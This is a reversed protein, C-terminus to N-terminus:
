KVVVKRGNNIYIGKTLPVGPVRSGDLRYWNNDSVRDRSIANIGTTKSVVKFNDAYLNVENTTTPAAPLKLGLTLSGKDTVTTTVSVEYATGWSSTATVAKTEDNAFLVIGNYDTHVVASVTYEGEPLISLSQSIINGSALLNGKSVWSQFCNGNVLGSHWENVVVPWITGWGQEGNITWGPCETIESGSTVCSEFDMNVFQTTIDTESPDDGSGLFKQLEYFAAYPQGSDHNFLGANWWSDTVGENGNDEPWWWFLGTVREHKNLLTILDATLQKQGEESLPYTATLDYESGISWKYGYGAEVIMIDKDYGKGELAKLAGELVSLAGHHDPYYSLGIIDYDIGNNKMRDFFDTLVGTKPVRESHLVIKADPCIERCAQSAKKLLSFFRNWNADSSTTYCRNATAGKPGWLMGYSIENGTQIFDPAAGEDKLQQLCEKTYEYVKTALAADGLTKWADPTWQNGPDAWTDSYHFDLMFKFGAAKIRSGLAKVYEIDQCVGKDSDKSPDVFLRVRMANLGNDKFLQLPQVTTGAKDKYVVGAEEYRTLMSIDGGVYKQAFCCIPACLLFLLTKKMYKKTKTEIRWKESKV